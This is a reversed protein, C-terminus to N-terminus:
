HGRGWAGGVQHGCPLLITNIPRDMCIMCPRESSRERALAVPQTRMSRAEVLLKRMANSVAVEFPVRGESDKADLRAGGGLLLRATAISDNRSALHLPSVLSSRTQKNPNAGLKLLIGVCVAGGERCAEHLATAGHPPFAHDLEVGESEVLREVENPDDTAVAM